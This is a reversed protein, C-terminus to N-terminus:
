DKEIVDDIVKSVDHAVELEVDDGGNFRAAEDDSCGKGVTQLDTEHRNAFGVFQGGFSHANIVLQFVARIRQFRVRICNCRSLAHQDHIIHEGGATGGARGSLQDGM